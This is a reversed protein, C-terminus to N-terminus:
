SFIVPSGAGEEPRELANESITLPFRSAALPYLLSLKSMKEKKRIWIICLNNTVKSRYL